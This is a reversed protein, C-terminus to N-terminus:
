QGRARGCGELLHRPITADVGVRGRTHPRQKVWYVFVLIDAGAGLNCRDAGPRRTVVTQTQGCASGVAHGDAIRLYINLATPMSALVGVHIHDKGTGM